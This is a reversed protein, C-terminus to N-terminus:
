RTMGRRKAQPNSAASVWLYPVCLGGCPALSPDHVAVLREGTRWTVATSRTEAPGLRAELRQVIRRRWAEDDELASLSLSILQAVGRAKGFTLSVVVPAGEITWRGECSAENARRETPRYTLTSCDLTAGGGRLASIVDTPPTPGPGGDTSESVRLGLTVDLWDRGADAGLADLAAAWLFVAM